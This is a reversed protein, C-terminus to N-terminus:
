VSTPTLTAVCFFKLSEKFNKDRPGVATLDEERTARLINPILRVNAAEELEHAKADDSRFLQELANIYPTVKPVRMRGGIASIAVWRERAGRAAWRHTKATHLVAVPGRHPPASPCDQEPKSLEVNKGAK